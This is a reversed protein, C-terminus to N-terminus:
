LSEKNSILINLFPLKNEIQKEYTFKVNKHKTNLYNYFTEADLEAEFVVFFITTLM